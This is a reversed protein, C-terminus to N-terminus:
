ERFLDGCIECSRRGSISIWMEYCGRHIATYCSCGSSFYESVEGFCYRCERIELFNSFLDYVISPKIKDLNIHVM